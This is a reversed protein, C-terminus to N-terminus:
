HPIQTGELFIGALEQGIFVLRGPHRRADEQTYEFEYSRHLTPKGRYMILKVAICAVTEDLFQADIRQCADRAALGAQERTRMASLWYGLILALLMLAALFEM